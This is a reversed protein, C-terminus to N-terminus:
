GGLIELTAKPLPILFGHRFLFYIAIPICPGALTLLVKHRGGYLYMLITFFPVSAVLFGLYPLLAIFVVYLVIMAIVRTPPRQWTTETEGQAEGQRIILWGQITMAISLVLVSLAIIWPFFTIGPDGGVTRQPLQSTLYGFTLSILILVVGAIINKQGMIM